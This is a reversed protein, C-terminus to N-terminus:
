VNGLKGNLILLVVACVAFIVLAILLMKLTTGKSSETGDSAPLLKASRLAKTLPKYLILTIAANLAGKIMNFPLFVPVLMDVVAARPMGMYIPTLFTNWLLMLGTMLVVGSLLGTVAMSLKRRKYYLLAGPLIFAGSAVINMVLGIWGTDSYSLTELASSVVTVAFAPAPGLLLACVALIVDKPDYKLWAAAPFLPPLVFHALTTLAFAMACFMACLTLTHISKQKKAM